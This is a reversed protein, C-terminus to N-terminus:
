KTVSDRQALSIMRTCISHVLYSVGKRVVLSPASKSAGKRREDILNPRQARLHGIKLLQM